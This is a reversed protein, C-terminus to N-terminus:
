EYQAEFERLAKELSKLRDSSLGSEQLIFRSEGIVDNQLKIHKKFRDISRGIEKMSATAERIENAINM